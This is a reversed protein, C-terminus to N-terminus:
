FPLPTSTSLPDHRVRPDAFASDPAHQRAWEQRVCARRYDDESVPEKACVPWVQDFDIPEGNLRAQWRWSRDLVEGTVPDNPPGHWVKVVGRVAGAHLRFRYFGAVPQSIDLGAYGAPTAAHATYDRHPRRSM